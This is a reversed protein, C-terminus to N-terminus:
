SIAIYIVDDCLKTCTMSIKKKLIERVRQSIGNVNQQTIVNVIVFMEDKNKENTDNDIM